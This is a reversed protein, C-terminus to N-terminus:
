VRSPAVTVGEVFLPTEEREAVNVPSVGLLVYATTTVATFEAPEVGEVEKLTVVEVEVGGVNGEERDDLETVNESNV